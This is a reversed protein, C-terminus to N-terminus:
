LEQHSFWTYQRKAYRRTAITLLASAEAAGIDGQVLRTLEPVGIARCIPADPPVDTRALLAAVEGVGTAVIEVARSAIRAELWDREPLLITASLRVTDRIGGERAGQWDILTRGTSRVVELARHVRATDNPHLRTASGPDLTRLEAHAQAVTLARVASRIAPDIPPVPAIGDLLTRLYLGTGGVLIPLKGTAHVEAVAARAEAAWRAASYGFDAADVHGFLRHPVRAEDEDSPRATVIRLDRYVQASDANIVVGDKGEAQAVALASKGSATPGAIVVLPPLDM